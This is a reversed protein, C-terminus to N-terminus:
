ENIFFIGKINGDIILENENLKRILLSDGQINIIKNLVKIKILYNDIDLISRYNIIHINDNNIIIEYKYKIESLINM